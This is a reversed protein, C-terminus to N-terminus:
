SYCLNYYACKFCYKNKSEKLSPPIERQVINNINTICKKLEKELEDNLEVNISRKELPIYIKAKLNPVYKKLISLYYALQMTASKIFSSSKKIEGVILQNEEEVKILDIKVSEIL